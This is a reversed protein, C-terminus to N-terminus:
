DGWIFVSIINSYAGIAEKGMVGYAGHLEAVKLVASYVPSCVAGISLM